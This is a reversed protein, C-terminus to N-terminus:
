RAPTPRGLMELVTPIWAAGIWVTGGFPVVRAVQWGMDALREVMIPADRPNSSHVIVPCSPKQTLLFEVVAMGTLPDFRSGDALPRTPGLDHDLSLLRVEPLARGLWTIFDPANDHHVPVIDPATERLVRMMEPYREDRDDELLGLTTV